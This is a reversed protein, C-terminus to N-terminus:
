RLIVSDAADGPTSNFRVGFLVFPRSHIGSDPVYLDLKHPSIAWIDGKPKAALRTVALSGAPSRFSWDQFQPPPRFNFAYRLAFEDAYLGHVPAEAAVAQLARVIASSPRRNGAILVVISPTLSWGVILVAGGRLLGQRWAKPWGRRWFLPFLIVASYFLYFVVYQAYLFYGLVGAGVWCAFLGLEAHRQGQIELATLRLGGVLCAILAPQRLVLEKGLVLEGWFNKWRYTGSPTVLRAHQFFTHTLDHLHGFVALAVLGSVVAAALLVTLAMPGAAKKAETQSAAYRWTAWLFLPLAFALTFPHCVVACGTAFTGAFYSSLGSPRFLWLQAIALCALGLADPRLGYHLLFVATTVVALYAWFRDEGSKRLLTFVTTSVIFGLVGAYALFSFTSVGVLRIWGALIWPQFPPQAYYRNSAFATFWNVIWPNTLGHGSALSVATGTFFSDDVHPPPFGALVLATWFLAIAAWDSFLRRNM